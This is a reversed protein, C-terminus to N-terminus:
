RRPALDTTGRGGATWNKDNGTPHLPHAGGEVLRQAAGAPDSACFDATKLIARLARKTAVPHSRVFERNGTLLALTNTRGLPLIEPGFTDLLVM